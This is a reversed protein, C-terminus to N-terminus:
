IVFIFCFSFYFGPRFSAILSVPCFIYVSDLFPCVICHNFYLFMYLLFCTFPIYPLFFFHLPSFLSRLYYPFNDFTVNTDRGDVVLRLMEHEIKDVTLANSSAHFAGGAWKSVHQGSALGIGVGVGVGVSLASILLEKAEM